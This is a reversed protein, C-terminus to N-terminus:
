CRRIDRVRGRLIWKCGEAPWAHGQMPTGVDGGGIACANGVHALAWEVKASLHASIICTSHQAPIFRGNSKFSTTAQM